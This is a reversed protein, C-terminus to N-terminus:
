GHRTSAIHSSKEIFSLTLLLTLRQLLINLFYKRPKSTSGIAAWWLCGMEEVKNHGGQTASASMPVNYKQGTTGEIKKRGEKKKGRRIEAKASQIDAM